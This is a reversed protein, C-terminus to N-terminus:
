VKRLKKIVKGYWIASPRLTREMTRYNVAALGFRPWRGSDLEINDLLSWHLYGWVDVGESIAAQLATVTSQIWQQRLTDRADAVGNETILIPLKYKDHLRVVTQEIHEPTVDWGMDSQAATEPNHVRYGYVRWSRYYNVGLFDCQKHVRRLFYDDHAYQLITATVHSLWADDGAYYYANHYALSVKTRPKLRHILKASQNHASILNRLVRYMQWKSRVNPPWVGEHYSLAAYVNPENLTIVYRVNVSLEEMVKEVYRLFFKVNSRKAFGGKQAFWVPLTFHFLTVVPEIGRRHLEDIYRKYHTIAEASWVGEEPEIRSWEISFRFANMHMSALLDFDQEYRNYHDVARGSIYNAPNTALKEHDKWSPIDDHHYSAQAALSKANDLEWVSWDNHVGGEVQHASTAAGWLFHKSFTTRDKSMSVMIGSSRWESTVCMDVAVASILTFYM